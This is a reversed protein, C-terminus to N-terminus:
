WVGSGGIRKAISNVSVVLTLGIVSKLLGVASALSYRAEQIGMRYTWTDIIDGVSYVLPHYFVLIQELGADLIHGLRLIFLLVIVPAIGPLTIHWIQKWKNAGDMVAAEYLSPNIGTIAAMYIITGWGSDKWMDTAVLVSRFWEESILFSVPQIGLQKLWMNVLGASESLFAFAIGYIIVWSFFHPVYSFAQVTKKFWNKTAENLLVALLIPPFFGFVLRYLSILVTNVFVQTFDPNDLFSRFHTLGVWPGAMFGQGPVYNQFAIALGYMPWYKFVIFYVLGAWIFLFRFKYKKLRIIV